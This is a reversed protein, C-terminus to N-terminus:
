KVGWGIVIYKGCRSQPPLMDVVTNEMHLMDMRTRPDGRRGSDM